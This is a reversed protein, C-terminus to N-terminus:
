SSRPWLSLIPYTFIHEGMRTSFLSTAPPSQSAEWIEDIGTFLSALCLASFLHPPYSQMWFHIRGVHILPFSARVGVTMNVKDMDDEAGEPVPVPVANLRGVIDKAANGIGM